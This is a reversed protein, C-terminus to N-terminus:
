KDDTQFPSAPLGEKNYLNAGDPNDAWAYRVSVPNPVVDNWVIIKDGDIKAKAWVYKKDAGAIAFYYLDGPGKIMLGSGINTFTIIMKNGEIKYSQYLPGTYVIDKEGYALHEAWLALRDGVDKKDLPHLENWNGVDIAVAMGTNPLTLTKRDSERLEAWGSESPSYNAEIYNPLQVYIFPLNGLQWKNRWDTILAPLLQAYEKARGANSEGQYWLFGKVAYNVAPAVLTNYIGTPSSQAQIFPVGTNAAPVGAPILRTIVQGVKYEWDGRLDISQGDANLSYDKDPLFGGKGFNSTVKVVILNKGPKLLNAPVEYRRNNYISGSGGVQVGNIYSVDADAIRSLYLHAPKGTMSAPVDVEKRFWVIGNLDKVGQDNWYGPLWFHHWHEPVYDVAYWPKPGSTGLDPEPAPRQGFGNGVARPRTAKNLYATDQFSKVLEEFKPMGKFGDASIWPEIQSGDWASAILGIPVHYKLYIQKAFFYSAASFDLVTAPTAAVWKGPPLDDHVKYLDAVNKVYFNRIQPYDAKAVDEPYKEKVAEMRLVMNSQGSCFWVDGLLIDNLKIENSGKIIMTFPGGAPMAPLNVLWRGGAGTIASGKKGNFAISVKEGPAAWGWIKLKTDRQLVMHDSVLQPLKVEAHANFVAFSVFLPIFTLICKAFSKM